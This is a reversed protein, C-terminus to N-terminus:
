FLFVRGILDWRGRSQDLGMLSWAQIVVGGVDNLSYIETAISHRRPPRYSYSRISHWSIVGISFVDRKRSITM